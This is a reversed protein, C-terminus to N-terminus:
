QMFGIPKAGPSPTWFNTLNPLVDSLQGASLTNTGNHAFWLALEAFYEDCSTSPIIRGGGTDRPNDLYISPYQGYIHQGNVAGGMVIAHGGWGHDSGDGNSVLKRAFDSMTFTTVCDEVGMEVLADHFSQLATDLAALLEGHEELFNNHNDFGNFQVFFTQNSVGLLDRAAITKAVMNLQASLKDDAFTTTLPTASGIAAGFQISNNKSDSISNAYATELINQYTNDLINDLTQRKLVNYFDTNSSGNVTVSGTGTSAIAYESVTNGRQFVNIGGLSINMSIDQNSNNTYLIDALRGGWGLADRDQPVSTQWHTKQDSHSFLGLPLNQGSQFDSLNTPQILAGVNAVFALNGSEFLNQINGMNPHLGYTKGDSVVPNIPLLDEQPIAINTRVNAYENYEDNGRPILMNYSDNGGSLLICVLAKYGNDQPKRILPRNAAALANFAGMNTIGSLLTTYGLAACGTTLRGLFDRRTHKHM